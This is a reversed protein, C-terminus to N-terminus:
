LVRVELLMSSHSRGCLEYCFGKFSGVLSSRLSNTFHFRGPIADYKIGFSYIGFSHIVDFSYILFKFLSFSPILFSSNFFSLYSHSISSTNSSFSGLSTIIQDLIVKYGNIDSHFNWFWQVGLAHIIISPIIILDLDLIYILSPSIILWVVIMCLGTLLIEVEISGIQVKSILITSSLILLMLVGILVIIMYIGITNYTLYELKNFM